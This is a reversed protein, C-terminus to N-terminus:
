CLAKLISVLKLGLGGGGQPHGLELFRAVTLLGSAGLPFLPSLKKRGTCGLTLPDGGLSVAKLATVHHLRLLATQM